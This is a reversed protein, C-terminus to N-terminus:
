GKAKGLYPSNVFFIFFLSVDPTLLGILYPSIIASVAAIGNVLATTTGAYNPSIDLPNIKMGSYYAGMLTMAFVFWFVALTTDCGSYSALIICIGPGTAALFSYM